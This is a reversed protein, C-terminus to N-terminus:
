RMVEAALTPFINRQQEIQELAEAYGSQAAELKEQLENTQAETAAGAMQGAESLCSACFILSVVGRGPLDSTVTVFGKPDVATNCVRCPKPSYETREFTM